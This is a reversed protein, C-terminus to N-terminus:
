KKKDDIDDDDDIAAKRLRQAFSLTSQQAKKGIRNEPAPKEIVLTELWRRQGTDSRKIKKNAPAALEDVDSDVSLDIVGGSLTGPQTLPPQMWQQSSGLAATAAELEDQSGYREAEYDLDDEYDVEDPLDNEDVEDDDNNNIDFAIQDANRDDDSGIEPVNSVAENYANVVGNELDQLIEAFEFHEEGEPPVYRDVMHVITGLDGSCRRMLADYREKPLAEESWWDRPLLNTTIIIMDFCVEVSGGKTEMRLPMGDCLRFLLSPKCFAGTFEEIVGVKHKRSGPRYDDLWLRGNDPSQFYYGGGPGCQAEAIRRARTSKGTGPPGTLVLLKTPRTRQTVAITDRYQKLMKAHHMFVKFHSQAIDELEAGEDLLKKVELLQDSRVTRSKQAGQTRNDGKLEGLIVQKGEKSCYNINQELSGRAVAWHAHKDINEKMWKLSRGNKNRPNPKLELYGQLHHTGSEGDEPEYILGLIQGDSNAFWVKPLDDSVPNNVTFCWRTGTERSM